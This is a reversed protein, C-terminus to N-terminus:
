VVRYSILGDITEVVLRNMRVLLLLYSRGKPGLELAELEDLRFFSSGGTKKKADTSRNLKEVAILLDEWTALCRIHSPLNEYDDKSVNIMAKPISPAAPDPELCAAGGESALNALSIDSIGLNKLSFSEIPDDKVAAKMTSGIAFVPECISSISDLRDDPGLHKSNTGIPTSLSILEAYEYDTDPFYGFDKLRDEIEDIEAQNSKFVEHCHGLLEEFSVTAFSMSELLNLDDNAAAVRRDLARIFTSTASSLPIPRRQVSETLADCNTQLHTCFSALTNCFTSISDDM